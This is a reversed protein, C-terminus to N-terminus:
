SSIEQDGGKTKKGNKKSFIRYFCFGNLLIIASWVLGMYLWTLPTM